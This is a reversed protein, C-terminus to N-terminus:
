KRVAAFDKVLMVTLVISNYAVCFQHRYVTQIIILDESLQVSQCVVFNHIICHTVHYMFLSM